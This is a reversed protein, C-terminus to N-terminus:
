GCTGVPVVIASAIGEEDITFSAEMFDMPMAGSTLFASPAASLFGGFINTGAAIGFCDQEAATQLASLPVPVTITGSAADFAAEVKAFEQCLTLNTGPTPSPPPLAGTTTCNGRLLFPAMGPDRPPPCLGGTPDCAGRSYNTFKGDLEIHNLTTDGDVLDINWTYRTAEPMGGIAPLEAVTIIFNVIDGANDINAQILDQGIASGVPAAEPAGATASDWDGAPDEGILTSEAHASTPIILATLAAFAGAILLKRM